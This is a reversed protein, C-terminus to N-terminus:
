QSNLWVLFKELSVSQIAIPMSSHLIGCIESCQGYFLGERNIHVSVQNLRGPYADCKISLAPVAFSHIVDAATVMFRTHTLEPLIVRNDVELMRLTGAELDSEPVLYSDYEIYEDESNLFDIYQYSWYWQHGEVIVTLNPDTVEDMLYLLKFSPFAILILILAPTITWILEILTGHNLYKNSIKNYPYVFNRIVSILIWGVSFLIAFLYFMIDNHLEILAEMQPSASDQFYLGWPKPADCLTIFLGSLSFLKFSSSLPLSVFAHVKPPSNLCWELSTYLRSLLLQLYDYFVPPAYWPYRSLNKNGVLQLYVIHLFLGTAVVSIISGFSSVINWGAYADPYDSIRRPMGQLGLFHQPFFTVNVGIFLLWFHLKGLTIDYLMGLMKPIWFYWGSFLAFVAGMSLVYHFHAVVYYTDHFALDISANALVVGSLGGITFMFVFGLAFLMFPTLHLSGGYCTALWSFIKIGTPVAIILTAATFYARTDVDLGVTYMHHSWVVFGLVGISMMAYVMGLYGFISKNSAASITTSIIGFGPIILIYVEPHGFFWFLHQYLIPDGGGAVEFFSTNFNRDTLVMTIGGALVPLSLLLLVATVIVAWGFLALKHLRIGPSRMNLITTIFNMAGLLSSVGSLHLGFIALDVSPGSHAQIGSLPPYLTWGTGAGNEIGSAFLFLALSPILLWFSINNLRPFAMDPGGVMLPLLFNGFGGILAPMVMFFIMVIAHATIISNYLQNDSIYQVGPGSLELRILVSFATGILGSFLAFILYLTGIDKANSSFFWRELWL